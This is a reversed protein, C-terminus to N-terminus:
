VVGAQVPREFIRGFLGLTFNAGVITNQDLVQSIGLLGETSNKNRPSTISPDEGENPLIQDFTHSLGWSFTTNKENFDIADNLSIGVSRYDSEKSYAFEPSLTNNGIKFNGTISGAYRHDHMHAIGINNSGPPNPPAGTPTAGTIADSIFNANLSFWSKVDLNSICGRRPSM